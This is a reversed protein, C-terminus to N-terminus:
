HHYGLANLQDVVEAPLTVRPPPSRGDIEFGIDTQWRELKAMLEFYQAPPPGREPLLDIAAQPDRALDYLEYRWHGTRNARSMVLKGGGDITALVFNGPDNGTAGYVTRESADGVLLPVLSRGHSTAPPRLGVVDLLTPALDVLSVRQPVRRGATRPVHVILPVRFVAEDLDGMHGCALDGREMLHEGHDATFALVTRELLGRRHLQKVLADIFRDVGVLLADYQAVLYDRGGPSERCDADDTTCRLEVGRCAPPVDDIFRLRLHDPPAYPEHMDYGHLFLFFPRDGHRDLWRAVVGDMDRLNRGPRKYSDFGQGFGYGDGVFGGGTLAATAYGAERLVEPLLEYSDPFPRASMFVLESERVPYRGSLMALHGPLTWASASYAREFVVGRRALADIAASTARRYGYTGLHDARLTDASILVINCGRCRPVRERVVQRLALMALVAAICRV